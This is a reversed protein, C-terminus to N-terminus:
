ALMFTRHKITARRHISVIPLSGLPMLGREKPYLLLTQVAFTDLINAVTARHSHSEIDQSWFMTWSIWFLWIFVSSGTMEMTVALIKKSKLSSEFESTLDVLCDPFLENLTLRASEFVNLNHVLIAPAVSTTVVDVRIGKRAFSLVSATTAEM